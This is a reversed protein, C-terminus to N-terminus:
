NRIKVDYKLGRFVPLDHRFRKWAKKWGDRLVLRYLRRYWPAHIYVVKFPRMYRTTLARQRFFRVGDPDIVYVDKGVLDRTLACYHEGDFITYAMVENPNYSRFEEMTVFRKDRGNVEHIRRPRTTRSVVRKLGLLDILFDKGSGSEGVILLLPKHPIDTM